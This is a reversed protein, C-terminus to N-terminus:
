RLHALVADGMEATTAKGGLDPTRTGSALAAAIAAVVADAAAREGLYELMLAGSWIAGIPNAIGKGAIDPASGHVPEFVGPVGGEPNLNASAAIGLSGQLAAALDTLIDGFLNSGVLVGFREPERVMRYACADVLMREWRVDRYEAAVERVVEDWLVMGFTLANSKTVSTLLSGRQRAIDFAYRAIREIGRRTFVSSEVALEDPTGTRFRGGLRAYEGETNERVFVFDIEQPAAKVPTPVGPFLRVPRLNVYLDLEKRLGIVSGWVAVDDPVDPSGVAGFYIADHGRVTQFADAAMMTGHRRYYESGWPLETWALSLGFRQAACEIVRRGQTVVEPGVGDGAIVAIRYEPPARLAGSCESM